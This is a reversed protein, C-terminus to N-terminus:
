FSPGVLLNHTQSWEKFEYMEAAVLEPEQDAQRVMECLVHHGKCLTPPNLTQKTFLVLFLAVGKVSFKM